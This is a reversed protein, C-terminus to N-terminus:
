NKLFYFGGLLCSFGLSFIVIFNEINGTVPTESNTEFKQSPQVPKKAVISSQPIIEPIDKEFTAVLTYNLTISKDKNFIVIKNEGKELDIKKIWKGSSDVAVLKLLNGIKVQVQTDPEGWGALEFSTEPGNYLYKSKGAVVNIEGIKDLTFYFDTSDNAFVNGVFFFSFISIFILFFIKLLRNKKM